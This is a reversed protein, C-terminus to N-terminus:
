EELDFITLDDRVQGDVDVRLQTCGLKRALSLLKDLVPFGDRLKSPDPDAVDPRVWVPRKAYFVTGFEDDSVCADHQDMLERERAPLHMTSLVLTRDIDYPATM